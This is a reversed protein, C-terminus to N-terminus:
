NLQPTFDLIRLIERLSVPPDDDHGVEAEILGRKKPLPSVVMKKPHFTSPFPPYQHIKIKQTLCRLNNQYTPYQYATAKV